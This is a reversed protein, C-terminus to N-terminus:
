KNFTFKSRHKKSVRFVGIGNKKCADLCEGCMICEQNDVLTEKEKQNIAQIKCVNSCKSCNVCNGDLGIVSAGPIKEIWGLILGIPCAARCFPRYSILSTILLLGVLIGSIIEYNYALMMQYIALFPDIKSWFIKQQILLQIVLAILLIYQIIKMVLISRRGTFIAWKGPRFLFEQLAGLHCIWGCFVRGFIYTIPILGLFWILSVWNIEVGAIFLITNEFSSIMCPCAGRYIGIFVISALLFLVRFQRTARYKVLFGTLITFCLIGIIWWFTPTLIKDDSVNDPNNPCKSCADVESCSALSDSNAFESNENFEKFEGFEDDTAVELTDTSQIPQNNAGNTVHPVIFLFFCLVISLLYFKKIFLLFRMKYNSHLQLQVAM